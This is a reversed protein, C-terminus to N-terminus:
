AFLSGQASAPENPEETEVSPKERAKPSTDSGEHANRMEASHRWLARWAGLQKVRSSFSCELCTKIKCRVVPGGGHSAQADDEYDDTVRVVLRTKCNPCSGETGELWIWGRGSEFSAAVAPALCSPCPLKPAKRKGM